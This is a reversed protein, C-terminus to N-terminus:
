SPTPPLPWATVKKYWWGVMVSFLGIIVVANALLYISEPGSTSKVAVAAASRMVVSIAACFALFITVYGGKGVEPQNVIVGFLAMTMALTIYLQIPPFKDALAWESMLGLACESM